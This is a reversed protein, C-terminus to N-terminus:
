HRRQGKHTTSEFTERYLESDLVDLLIEEIVQDRAIRAETVPDAIEFEDGDDGEDGLSGLLSSGGEDDVEDDGEALSIIEDRLGNFIRERVDANDALETSREIFTEPTHFHQDVYRFVGAFFALLVGIAVLASAAKLSAVAELFQDPNRVDPYLVGSHVVNVPRSPDM